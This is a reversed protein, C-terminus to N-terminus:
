IDSMSLLYKIFSFLYTPKYYIARVSYKYFRSTFGYEEFAKIALTYCTKGEIWSKNVHINKSVLSKYVELYSSIVLEDPYKKLPSVSYILYPQSILKIKNRSAIRLWMEWDEGLYIKENFFGIEEIIIKKVLVSSTIIINGNLLTDFIDGEINKNSMLYNIKDKSYIAGTAVLGLTENNNLIEVQRSLKNPLWFDDSDLFAILDGSAKRIGANRAASVGKNEQEIVTLHAHNFSKVINTTDDESGDDVVIIDYEKYDQLLISHLCNYITKSSNHTPIVISIKPHKSKM